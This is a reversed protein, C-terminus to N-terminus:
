NTYVPESLRYLFLFRRHKVVCIFICKNITCQSFDRESASMFMVAKGPKHLSLTLHLLIMKKKAKFEQFPMWELKLQLVEKKM